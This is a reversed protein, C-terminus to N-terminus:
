LLAEERTGLQHCTILAANGVSDVDPRRLHCAVGYFLLSFCLVRMYVCYLIRFLIVIMVLTVLVPIPISSAANVYGCQYLTLKCEEFGTCIIVIFM